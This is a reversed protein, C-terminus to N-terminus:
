RQLSHTISRDRTHMCICAMLLFVSTPVEWIQGVGEDDALQSWYAGWLFYIPAKEPKNNNVFIHVFWLCFRFVESTM